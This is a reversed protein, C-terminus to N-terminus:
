REHSLPPILRRILREEREREREREREGSRQGQTQRREGQKESRQRPAALRMEVLTDCEFYHRAATLCPESGKSGEGPGASGFTTVDVYTSVDWSERDSDRRLIRGLNKKM